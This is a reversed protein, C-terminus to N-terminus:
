KAAEEKRVKNVIRVLGAMPALAIAIATGVSEILIIFGVFTWFDRFIFNLIELM